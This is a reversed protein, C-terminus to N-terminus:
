KRRTYSGDNGRGTNRQDDPERSTRPEDDGTSRRDDVRPQKQPPTEGLATLRERARDRAWIDIPRDGTTALARRYETRAGNVNGQREFTLGRSYMASTFGSDVRLADDFDALARDYNKKELWADGRNSFAFPNKPNVLLSDSLDIIAKDFEKNRLYGLGRNSLTISRDETSLGGKELAQTCVRIIALDDDKLTAKFCDEATQAHAAHPLAAFAALVFAAIATRRM